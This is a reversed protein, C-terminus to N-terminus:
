VVIHSDFSMFQTIQVFGSTFFSSVKESNRNENINNYM